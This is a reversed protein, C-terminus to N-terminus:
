LLAHPLILKHGFLKMYMETKMGGQTIASVPLSFEGIGVYNVGAVRVSYETNPSIHESLTIKPQCDKTQSEYEMEIGSPTLGSYKVLYRLIKGNQHHCPISKWSLNITEKTVDMVKVNEPGQTPGRQAYIVVFCM